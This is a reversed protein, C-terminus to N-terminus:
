TKIRVSCLAAEPEDAINLGDVRQFRIRLRNPKDEVLTGRRCIIGDCADRDRGFYAVKIIDDRFEYLGFSDRSRRDGHQREPVHRVIGLVVVEAIAQGLLPQSRPRLRQSM